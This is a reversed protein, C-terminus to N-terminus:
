KFGHKVRVESFRITVKLGPANDAIEITADHLEVIAAVLSLGLGNGPTTRSRELRYFRRFVRNREGEPIGPGNDSIEACVNGDVRSLRMTVTTGKSTHRLANEVLNAFLQVLLERDGAITVTDLIDTVFFRGSDELAPGYAEAVRRMVDSLDVSRFSSRRIGAEIQAIRLLASFTDLLTDAEAIARDVAMEYDASTSARDRADELQQRLRALPTRLDHAIDNSVQRLNELLDQIKDLMLNLTTSLRDFDDGSGTLAIRQSLDGAIIAEATRTVSDVRRLLSRTFLAGAGLGLLLALGLAVLFGNLVVDEVDEVSELNDAIVLRLGDDLSRSAVLIHDTANEGNSRPVLQAASGSTRAFEALYRDGAIAQGQADIIAYQLRRKAASSREEITSRLGALGHRRYEAVLSAAETEVRDRAQRELASTVTVEAVWAIVSVSLVFVLTHLLAFRFGANKVLSRIRVSCIGPAM